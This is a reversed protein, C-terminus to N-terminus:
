RSRLIFLYSGIVIFLIFIIAFLSILNMLFALLKHCSEKNDIIQFQIFYFLVIAYITCCYIFCVKTKSCLKLSSIVGALVVSATGQIDDNFCLARNRYEELLGFANTNGFDEFKTCLVNHNKM